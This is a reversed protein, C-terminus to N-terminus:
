EEEKNLKLVYIKKTESSNRTWENLKNGGIYFLNGDNDQVRAGWRNPTHSCLDKIKKNKINLVSLNEYPAPYHYRVILIENSNLPYFRHFDNGYFIEGNFCILDNFLGKKIDFVSICDKLFYVIKSLDKILIFGKLNHYGAYNLKMYDYPINLIDGKNYTNQKNENKLSCQPLRNIKEKIKEYIINDPKYVKKTKMNYIFGDKGIGWHSGQIIFIEDNNLQLANADYNRFSSYPIDLTYSECISNTNPDYIEIKHLYGSNPSTIILINGNCLLYLFPNDNAYYLNPGILSKGTKINFIETSSLINDGGLKTRNRGGAIFIKDNDFLIASHSYRPVIMEGICEFMENNKGKAQMISFINLFIFVFILLIIRKKFIM